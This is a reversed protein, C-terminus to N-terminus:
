ELSRVSRGTEVATWIRLMHLQSSGTAMLLWQLRVNVREAYHRRYALLPGCAILM